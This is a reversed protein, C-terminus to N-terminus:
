IYSIKSGLFLTIGTGYINLFVLSIQLHFFIIFENDILYKSLCGYSFGVVNFCSFHFILEM